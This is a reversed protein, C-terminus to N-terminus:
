LLTDKYKHRVTKFYPCATQASASRKM